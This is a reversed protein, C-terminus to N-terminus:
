GVGVPAAVLFELFHHLREFCGPMVDALKLQELRSREWMVDFSMLVCLCWLLRFAEQWLSVSFVCSCSQVHKFMLSCAFMLILMRLSDGYLGRIRFPRHWCSGAHWIQVPVPASIAQQPFWQWIIAGQAESGSCVWAFWKMMQLAIWTFACDWTPRRFWKLARMWAWTWDLDWTRPGRRFLVVLCGKTKSREIKEKFPTTRITWLTVSCNQFRCVKHIKRLPKSARGRGLDIRRWWFRPSWFGREECTPRRHPLLASLVVLNCLVRAACTSDHWTCATSHYHRLMLEKALIM